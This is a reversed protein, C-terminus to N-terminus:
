LYADLRAPESSGPRELQVADGGLLPLRHEIRLPDRDEARRQVADRDLDEGPIERHTSGRAGGHARFGGPQIVSAQGDICSGGGAAREVPPLVPFYPRTFQHRTSQPRDSCRRPSPAPGARRSRHRRARGHGPRRRATRHRPRSGSRGTGCGRVARRRRSPRRGRRRQDAVRVCRDPAGRHKCRAETRDDRLEGGEAPHETRIAVDAHPQGDEPQEAVVQRHCSGASQDVGSCAAIRGLVNAGLRATQLGRASRSRARACRIGRGASNRPCPRHAANDM